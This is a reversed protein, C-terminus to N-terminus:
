ALDDIKATEANMAPQAPASNPPMDPATWPICNSGTFLRTIRSNANTPPM